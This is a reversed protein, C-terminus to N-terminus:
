ALLGAGVWAELIGRLEKEVKWDQARHRRMVDFAVERSLGHQDVLAGCIVLDIYADRVADM